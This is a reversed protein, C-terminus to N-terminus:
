TSTQLYFFFLSVLCSFTVNYVIFMCILSCLPCTNSKEEIPKLTTSFNKTGKFTHICHIVYVPHYSDNTKNLAIILTQIVVCSNVINVVHKFLCLFFAHNEM